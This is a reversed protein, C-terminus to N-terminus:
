AEAPNQAIFAATVLHEYMGRIFKKAGIGRGNGALILLDGSDDFTTRGLYFVIIQALRLGTQEAEPMESGTQDIRPEQNYNELARTFMANVLTQIEPFERLFTEHTAIFRKQAEADGVSIPLPNEVM